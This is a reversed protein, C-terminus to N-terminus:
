LLTYLARHEVYMWVWLHEDMWTYLLTATHCQINLMNFLLIWVQHSRKGLSGTIFNFADLDHTEVTEKDFVWSTSSLNIIPYHMQWHTYSFGPWKSQTFCILSDGWPNGQSQYHSGTRRHLSALRALEHVSHQPSNQQHQWGKEGDQLWEGCGWMSARLWAQMPSSTHAHM